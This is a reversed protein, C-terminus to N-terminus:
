RRPRRAAQTFMISYSFSTLPYGEKGTGMGFATPRFALLVVEAPDAMCCYRISHRLAASRSLCSCSSTDSSRCSRGRLFISLSSSRILMGDEKSTTDLPGDSLHMTYTLSRSAVLRVHRPNPLTQGIVLCGLEKSPTKLGCWAGPSQM